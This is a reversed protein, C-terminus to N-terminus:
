HNKRARLKINEIARESMYDVLEDTSDLALIYVVQACDSATQNILCSLSGDNGIKKDFRMTIQATKGAGYAITATVDLHNITIDIDNGNKNIQGDIHVDDSVKTSATNATVDAATMTYDDDNKSDSHFTGDPKTATTANTSQTYASVGAVAALRPLLQAMTSVANVDPNADNDTSTEIYALPCASGSFTTTSSNNKPDNSTTTTCPKLLAAVEKAVPSPQDVDTGSAIDIGDMTNNIGLFFNHLEDQDAKPLGDFRLSETKINAYLKAIAVRDLESLEKAHGMQDAYARYEDKPVITDKNNKSFADRRYHMISLFDYTTVLDTKQAEFNLKFGFGWYHDEVNEKVITIYKDRDARQHEHTFGLVHGMEHLVIEPRDCGYGLNMHRRVGMFYAGQGLMSWCGANNGMFTRTVSLKQGKYPGLQCHINPSYKAWELCADLVMKQLPPAIEDNFTIPIVGDTWLEVKTPKDAFAEPGEQAKLLDADILQDGVV